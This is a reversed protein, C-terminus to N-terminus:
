SKGGKGNWLEDVSVGFVKALREQWVRRPEVNGSEWNSVSAPSTGILEALQVGKLGMRKRHFAINEHISM